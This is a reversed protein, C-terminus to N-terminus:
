KAHYVGHLCVLKGEKVLVGLADSISAKYHNFHPLELRLIIDRETAPSGDKIANLVRLKFGNNTSSCTQSIGYSALLPGIM